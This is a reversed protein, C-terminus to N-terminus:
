KEGDGRDGAERSGGHAVRYANRAPPFMRMKRDFKFDRHIRM